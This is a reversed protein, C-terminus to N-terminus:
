DDTHLYDAVAFGSVAYRNGGLRRVRDMRGVLAVETHTIGTGNRVV